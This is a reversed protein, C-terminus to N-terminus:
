KQVMAEIYALIEDWACGNMSELATPPNGHPARCCIGRGGEEDKLFGFECPNILVADVLNSLDIAHGGYVLKQDTSRAKCLFVGYRQPTLENWLFNCSKSDPVIPYTWVRVVDPGDGQYYRDARITVISRFLTQGDIDFRVHDIKVVTGSFVYDAADFLEEETHIPFCCTIEKDVLQVPVYRASVNGDTQEMPIIPYRYYYGAQLTVALVLFFCAAATLARRRLRRKEAIRRLNQARRVLYDDILDEDLLTIADLFIDKSM